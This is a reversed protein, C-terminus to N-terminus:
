HAQPRVAPPNAVQAQRFYELAREYSGNTEAVVGLNFLAMPQRPDIAVARTFLSEAIGFASLNYYCVGLDVLTTARRPDLRSASRYHIIAESWNGTDYLVDALAIRAGINTSDQALAARAQDARQQQEPRAGAIGAGAANTKWFGQFAFYVIGLVVAVGTILWLQMQVPEMANPRSRRRMPRPGPDFPRSEAAEPP